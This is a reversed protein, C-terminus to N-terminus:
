GSIKGTAVPVRGVDTPRILMHGRHILRSFQRPFCQRFLNIAWKCADTEDKGLAHAFEHLYTVVSLKGALVIRHATPLYYSGGSSTGDMQEFRFEPEPINCATALDHNLKIFKEKRKQLSGSWPRSSAFARVARLMAPRFRMEVDIVEIVTEPYDGRM